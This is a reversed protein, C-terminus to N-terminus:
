NHNPPMLCSLFFEIHLPVEVNRNLEVNQAFILAEFIPLITACGKMSRIQSKYLRLGIKVRIGRQLTLEMFFIPIAISRNENSTRKCCAGSCQTETGFCLWQSLHYFIGLFIPPKLAQTARTQVHLNGDLLKPFYRWFVEISWICIHSIVNVWILKM